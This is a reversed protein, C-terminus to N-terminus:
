PFEEKSDCAVGVGAVPGAAEEAGVVPGTAVGAGTFPVAAPGSFLDMSTDTVGVCLIFCYM